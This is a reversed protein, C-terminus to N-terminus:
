LREIKMPRGPEVVRRLESFIEHKEESTGRRLMFTYLRNVSTRLMKAIDDYTMGLKKSTRAIKLVDNETFPLGKKKHKRETM